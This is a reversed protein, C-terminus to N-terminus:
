FGKVLDRCGRGWGRRGFKGYVGLGRGWRIIKGFVGSVLFLIILRIVVSYWVLVFYGRRRGVKGVM